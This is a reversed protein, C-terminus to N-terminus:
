CTGSSIVLGDFGIEIWNKPNATSPSNPDVIYFGSPAYGLEPNCTVNGAAYVIDGNVPISGQGTFAMQTSGFSDTDVACAAPQAPQVPSFWVRTCATSCNCCADSASVASYCLQDSHINRYDWILYLYTNGLAFANETAQYLAAGM